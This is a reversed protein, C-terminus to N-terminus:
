AHQPDITAALASILAVQEEDDLSLQGTRPDILELQWALLTMCQALARLTEGQLRNRPGAARLVDHIQQAFAAIEELRLARAAMALRELTGVLCQAADTDNCILELHSLCEDLKGLLTQAVDKFEDLTSPWQDENLM